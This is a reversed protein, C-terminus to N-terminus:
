MMDIRIPEAYDVVGMDKLKKCYNKAEEFARSSVLAEKKLYDGILFRYQEPGADKITGALSSQRKQKDSM